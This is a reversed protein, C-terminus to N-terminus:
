NGQSIGSGMTGNFIPLDKSSPKYTISMSAAGDLGGALRDEDEIPIPDGTGTDQKVARLCWVNGDQYSDTEGFTNDNSSISGEIMLQRWLGDNLSSSKSMSSQDYSYVGGDAFIQIQLNKVENGIYVNGGRTNEKIAIIGLQINSDSSFDSGIYIDGGVAVITKSKDWSGFEYDDDLVVDTEVLVASTGSNRLDNAVSSNDGRYNRLKEINKIILERNQSEEGSIVAEGQTNGGIVISNKEDSTCAFEPYALCGPAGQYCCKAVASPPEPGEDIDGDCDDDKGNSCLDKTYTQAGETVNCTAVGGVCVNVGHRECVSLPTGVTCLEGEGACTGGGDLDCRGDCNKDVCVGGIIVDAAGPNMSADNDNCDGLLKDGPCSGDGIACYGDGDIDHAIAGNVPINVGNFDFWGVASSWGAKKKWDNPINGTDKDRQLPGWVAIGAVPTEGGIDIVGVQSSYIRSSSLFGGSPRIVAKYEYDCDWGMNNGKVGPAPNTDNCYFSIMGLNDDWEWGKLIFNPTFSGDAAVEKEVCVGQGAGIVVGTKYTKSGVTVDKIDMSNNFDIIGANAIGATLVATTKGKLPVCPNAAAAEAVNIKSYVFSVVAISVMISCLVFTFALKRKTFNSM